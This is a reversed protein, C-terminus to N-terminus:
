LATTSIYKRSGFSCVYIIKISYHKYHIESSNCSNEQNFFHDAISRGQNLKMLPAYIIVHTFEKLPQEAWYEGIIGGELEKINKSKLLKVVSNLNSFEEESNGILVQWLLIQNVEIDYFKWKIEEKIKEKLKVVSNTTNIITTFGYNEEGDRLLLCNISIDIM